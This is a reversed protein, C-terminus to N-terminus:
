ISTDEQLKTDRIIEWFLAEDLALRRILCQEIPLEKLEDPWSCPGGGSNRPMGANKWTWCKKGRHFDPCDAPDDFHAEYPAFIPKHTWWYGSDPVHTDRVRYRAVGLHKISEENQLNKFANWVVQGTAEVIGHDSLAPEM